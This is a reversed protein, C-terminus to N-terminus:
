VFEEESSVSGFSLSFALVSTEEDSLAGSSAASKGDSIESVAEASCDEPLLEESPNFSSTFAEFEHFSPVLSKVCSSTIMVLM